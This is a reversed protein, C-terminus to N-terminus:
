GDGANGFQAFAAAAVGELQRLVQREDVQDGSLAVSVVIKCGQEEDSFACAVSRSAQFVRLWYGSGAEPRLEWAVSVAPVSTLAAQVVGLDVRDLPVRATAQRFKKADHASLSPGHAFAVLDMTESGVRWVGTAVADLSELLGQLPAELM